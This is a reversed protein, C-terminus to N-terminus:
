VVSITKKQRDVYCLFQRCCFLLITMEPVLNVCKSLIKVKLYAIQFSLRPLICYNSRGNKRTELNSNRYLVFIISKQTKLHSFIDIKRNTKTDTRYHLTLYHNLNTYLLKCMHSASKNIWHSQTQFHNTRNRSYNLMKIWIFFFFECM